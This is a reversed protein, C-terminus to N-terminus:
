RSSTAANAIEFQGLTTAVVDPLSESLPRHRHTESLIEVGWPGSWGKDQMIQIFRPVPWDGEGPLRRRNVTDTYADGIQEADADDLEIGKIMELPVDTLAELQGDPGRMVHWLDILLGGAPHGATRVLTVSDALTAINSFPLFELAITTGVDAFAASTRAFAEAYADLDYTTDTISPGVKVHHPRLAQSAELLLDRVRDSAERRPGDPVWWDSLLELEVSTMGHDDLVSRLETLSHDRLYRALDANVVGFGTFGAAAAAAIRDPLALPSEPVGLPSAAGATTWCTALLEPATM